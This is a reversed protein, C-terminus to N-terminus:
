VESNEGSGGTSKESQNLVLTDPPYYTRVLKQIYVDKYFGNNCLKVVLYGSAMKKPILFKKSRRSYVKGDSTIQYNPFGIIQKGDCKDITQEPIAYEWRFGGSTKRKGKCVASIQRDNAGTKKAAEIISDFTAMYQGDKSFQKVKKPHPKTLKHKIAHQCNEKSTTWELNTLNNDTKVGNKHNVYAATEDLYTLAVLRHVNYTNKKKTLPDYFNVAPYGNRIHQKCVRKDKLKRVNGKDSIEYVHNYLNNVPKWNEM